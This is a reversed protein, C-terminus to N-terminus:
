SFSVAAVKVTIPSFLARLGHSVKQLIRFSARSPAKRGETPLSTIRKKSKGGHIKGETAEFADLPLGPPYGASGTM